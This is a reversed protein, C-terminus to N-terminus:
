SPLLERDQQAAQDQHSASTEITRSATVSFYDRIISDADSVTMEVKVNHEHTEKAKGFRWEVWKSAMLAAVKVDEGTLLRCILREMNESANAKRIHSEVRKAFQELNQGRRM